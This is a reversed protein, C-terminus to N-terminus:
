QDEPRARSVDTGSAVLLGRLSPQQTLRFMWRVPIESYSRRLEAAVFAVMEMDGQVRLSRVHSLAVARDLLLEPGFVTELLPSAWVGHRENGPLYVPQELTIPCEVFLGSLRPIALATLTYDALNEWDGIRVPESLALGQSRFAKETMEVCYLAADDMRFESDFPVQQEYVKRCYEIVGPVRHQQGAKLRKVGIQGVCELMWVEFTQRQIGELACDYVVPAGDEIAVIGTHSFPSGSAGAIFLSLPFSGRMIRADGLRFVIDGERLTKRGWASWGTMTPTMALPPLEGTLRARTAAPGWYNGSWNIPKM